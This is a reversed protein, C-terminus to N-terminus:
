GSEGEGNNRLQHGGIWSGDAVYWSGSGGIRPVHSPFMNVLDADVDESDNMPMMMMTIAM